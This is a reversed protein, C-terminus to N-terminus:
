LKFIFFRIPDFYPKVLFVLKKDIWINNKFLINAQLQVVDGVQLPLLTSQFVPNHGGVDSIGSVITKENKRLAVSCYSFHISYEYKRLFVCFKRAQRFQNSNIIYQTNSFIWKKNKHIYIHLNVFIVYLM